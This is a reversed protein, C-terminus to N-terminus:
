RVWPQVAPGKGEPPKGALDKAGPPGAPLRGEPVLRAVNMGGGASRRVAVTGKAAAVEGVVIEKRGPDVEADKLALEPIKLFEEKPCGCVREVMEPTYRAYHRKMLQYVCRPHQLEPDVKAYGDAGIEYDRDFDDPYLLVENLQEWDYAPWGLSLTM